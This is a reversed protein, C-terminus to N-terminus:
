ELGAFRAANALILRDFLRNRGNGEFRYRGPQLRMQVSLFLLVARGDVSQKLVDSYSFPRVDLNEYRERQELLM